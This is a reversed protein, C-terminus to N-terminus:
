LLCAPMCCSLGPQRRAAGWRYDMCFTARAFPGELLAAGSPAALPLAVRVECKLTASAQLAAAAPLRETV